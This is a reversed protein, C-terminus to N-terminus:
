RHQIINVKKQGPTTCKVSRLDHAPGTRPGELPGWVLVEVALVPTHDASADQEGGRGQRRPRPSARGRTCFLFFGPGAVRIAVYPRKVEGTQMGGSPKPRLLDSRKWTNPFHSIRPDGAPLPKGAENPLFSRPVEGSFPHCTTVDDRAM